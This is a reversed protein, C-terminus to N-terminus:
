MPCGGQMHESFKLCWDYIATCEEPAKDDRWRMFRAHRTRGHKAFGNCDIEFARGIDKESLALRTKKDMGCCKGLEQLDGYVTQLKHDDTMRRGSPVYWSFCMSAVKGKWQGATGIEYGTLIVDLTDVLKARYVAPHKRRQWLVLGEKGDERALQLYDDLLAQNAHEDDRFRMTGYEHPIAFGCYALIKRQEHPAIDPKDALNFATIRLADSKEILATKVDSAEGGDVTLEAEIWEAGCEAFVEQKQKAIEHGFDFPLDNWKNVFVGRWDTRKGYMEGGLGLVIKEGDEKVEVLFRGRLGKVRIDRPRSLEVPLTKRYERYKPM